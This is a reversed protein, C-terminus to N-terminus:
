GDLRQRLGGSHLYELANPERGLFSPNVQGDAGALVGVECAAGATDTAGPGLAESM